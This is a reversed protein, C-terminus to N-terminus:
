SLICIGFGQLTNWGLWPISWSCSESSCWWWWWSIGLTGSKESHEWWILATPFKNTDVRFAGSQGSMSKSSAWFKQRSWPMRETDRIEDSLKTSFFCLSCMASIVGLPYQVRPKMSFGLSYTWKRSVKKNKSLCQNIKPWRNYPTILHVFYRFFKPSIALWITWFLSGHATNFETDCNLFWLGMSFQSFEVVLKAVGFHWCHTFLDIRNLFFSTM